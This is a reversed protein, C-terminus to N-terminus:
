VKGLICRPLNCYDNFIQIKKFGHEKMMTTVQIAQDYGIEFLVFLNKCGIKKVSDLIKRYATLGDHGGDLSLLPDYKKVEDDLLEIESRRIYPPNSILIDFNLNKFCSLWDCCIYQMRNNTNNLIANKKAIYIAEKSIDTVVSKASKFHKLLSISLAGTGTGLELINGIYIKQKVLIDILVESDIRPSFTYDNIFLKIDRFYAKQFIRSLPKRNKREDFIKELQLIQKKKITLNKKFVQDELSIGLHEQLIYRIEQLSNEVGYNALKELKYEIYQSIKM